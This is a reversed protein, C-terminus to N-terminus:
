RILEELKASLEKRESFRAFLTGDSKYLFFLPLDRVGFQEVLPSKFVGRDCVISGRVSDRKMTNRCAREEADLSVHLVKVRGQRVLPNTRIAKHLEPMYKLWSAWFVVLLPRDKYDAFSIDKGEIDTAKFKPLRSGASLTLPGRLAMEYKNLFESKLGGKRLVDLLSLTTQPDAESAYAFFDLFVALGDLTTSHDRIYQEAALRRDSVPRSLLSERFDSLRDNAETGGVEVAELRNANGKIRIRQGPEAVFTTRLFNPYLIAYLQPETVPVRYDFKGKKLKLTDIGRFTGSECYILLNADRLNAFEGTIRAQDRGGSCATLWLLTCALLCTYLRRLSM